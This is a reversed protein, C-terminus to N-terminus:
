PASAGLYAEVVQADARVQGPDGEAIKRGFHLAVVQDSVNMVLDMRHEVLLITLGLRDRLARISGALAEVEEHNLGSAPEDLLLLRPESALARALEVRKRIGFALEAARAHMVSSLGLLEIQQAARSRAAREEGAVRPLRLASALFGSRMRSHAGLLVNDLVSMTDFLALNQFTRGIGLPAIRHRPLAGLDLGDFRVRGTDPEHLRSVCDFLTTKGAGNPGILSCVTGRQVAFSVRDLAVIGGFRVSVGEVALLPEERCTTM